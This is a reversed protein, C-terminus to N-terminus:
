RRKERHKEGSKAAMKLWRRRWTMVGFGNFLWSEAHSLRVNGLALQLSYYL